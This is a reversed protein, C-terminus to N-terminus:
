NRNNFWFTLLIVQNSESLFLIATVLVFRAEKFSVRNPFELNIEKRQQKAVVISCACKNRVFINRILLIFNLQRSFEINNETNSCLQIKLYSHSCVLKLLLRDTIFLILAVAYFSKM